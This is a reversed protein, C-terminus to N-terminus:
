TIKLELDPQKSFDGSENREVISIRGHESEKWLYERKVLSENPTRQEVELEWEYILGDQELEVKWFSSGRVKSSAIIRGLNFVTNLFRTKGTGTDGVLLNLKGLEVKSFTWKSKALEGFQYSIIKM